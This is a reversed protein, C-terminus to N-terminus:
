HKYLEFQNWFLKTGEIDIFSIANRRRHIEVPWSLLVIIQLIIDLTAILIVILHCYAINKISFM